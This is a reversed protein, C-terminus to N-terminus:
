DFWETGEFSVDCAGTVAIASGAVFTKRPSKFVVKRVNSPPIYITEDAAAVATVIAAEAAAATAGTAITVWVANASRNTISVQNVKQLLGWTEATLGINDHCAKNGSNTLAM